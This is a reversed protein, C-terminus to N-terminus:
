SGRINTKQAHSHEGKIIPLHLLSAEQPHVGVPVHNGDLFFHIIVRVIPDAAAVLGGNQFTTAVPYQAGTPPSHRQPM